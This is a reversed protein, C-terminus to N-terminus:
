SAVDIHRDDRRVLRRQVPAVDLGVLPALFELAVLEGLARRRHQVLLDDRLIGEGFKHAHM